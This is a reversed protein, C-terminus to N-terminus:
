ASTEDETRRPGNKCAAVEFGPACTTEDRYKTRYAELAQKERTSKLHETIEGRAQELTPLHSPTIENVVFVAWTGDDMVPGILEGKRARFIAAGLGANDEGKWEATIRGGRNSSFHRSYQKAVSNWSRGADLAARAAEARARSSAIVIRMERRDPIVLENKNRRYYDAIQETPVKTAQETMQRTLKVKLQNQRVRAFLEGESIGARRMSEMDFVGSQEAKAVVQEVEADDVVIGRAKAEQRTWEAKILYDMVSTKIQQYEQRCQRELEAEAPQKAGAGSGPEQKGAVCAAYDRPDSDRGTAFRLASEFDSKTIVTGGVEAVADDELGDSGGCAAIAAAGLLGAAVVLMAQVLSRMPAAFSLCLRKLLDGNAGLQFTDCSKPGHQRQDTAASM